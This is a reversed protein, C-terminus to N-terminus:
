GAERVGDFLGAESAPAALRQDNSEAPESSEAAEHLELRLRKTTHSHVRRPDSPRLGCVWLLEDGACVVPIRLRDERPVGVDALFRTLKRRGPAGLPHFRDGTRPFRVSLALGGLTDGDLEVTAPSRPVPKGPVTEVWEATVQRGDPLSVVGPVTLHLAPQAELESSGGGPTSVQATVQGPDFPLELQRVVIGNAVITCTSLQQAPPLLHLTGSRLQLSWQQPLSHRTCRGSALDGAILELLRRSPPRGTGEYLLHWLARRRLPPVLQMLKKRSLTGGLTAESRHHRAAAHSPRDWALHATGAALRDEFAEVAAGFARLNEIAEPGCAAALGPLLSHRVRNRTFQPSANSRDERWALGHDTLIRRVEERRMGILPRVVQLPHAADETPSSGAPLSLPRVAKLGALGGLHTGRVWRMMLTELADDAHHGTLVTPIGAISAEEALVAYRAHRARAELSPGEPDLAIERRVLPVALSRCLRACFAADERSEQGRLGHDVHVALVHPRPRSAAILHLCLVSDAGGSLAVVVPADPSLGVSRALRSWRTAYTSPLSDPPPV